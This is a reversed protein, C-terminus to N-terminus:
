AMPLRITFRSGRGPSSSVRITGGHQDVINKTIFLGLGTGLRGKASFFPTFLKDLTQDDMGLGNDSVTFVVEEKDVVASFCICPGANGDANRCADVANDFLNMLAAHVYDSDMAVLTSPPDHRLNFTIDSTKLRHEATLAVEEAFTKLDVQERYLRRSKSCFLIDMILKRIREVMLKVTQWGDDIRQNDGSQFGKELQYM